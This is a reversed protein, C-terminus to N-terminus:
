RAGATPFLPRYAPDCVAAMVDDMFTGPPVDEWAAGAGLARVAGHADAGAYIDLRRQLVRTGACDVDATM